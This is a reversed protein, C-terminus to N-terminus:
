RVKPNLGTFSLLKSSSDFNNIDNIEGIIVTTGISNIEPITLISLEKDIHSAVEKRLIISQSIHMSISINKIGTSNLM